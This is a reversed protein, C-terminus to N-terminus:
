ASQPPRGDIRIIPLWTALTRGLSGVLREGFVCLSQEWPQGVIGESFDERLFISYDGHPYASVRWDPHRTTAHVAADLRYCLDQWVLVVWMPDEAFEALFCRLVEANVADVRSRWVGVRDVPVTLDFTISPAPEVIVPRTPERGGPRFGFRDTFREWLLQPDELVAWGPPLLVGGHPPRGQRAAAEKAQEDPSRIQDIFLGMMAATRDGPDDERFISELLAAIPLPKNIEEFRGTVRGLRLRDSTDVCDLVDRVEDPDATFPSIGMVGLAAAVSVWDDVARMEVVILEALDM